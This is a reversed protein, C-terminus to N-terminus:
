NILKTQKTTIYENIINLFEDISNDNEGNNNNVFKIEKNDTIEYIIKTDNDFINKVTYTNKTGGREVFIIGKGQLAKKRTDEEAKKRTDEEAKKRADEEAKKHELQKEQIQKLLIKYLENARKTLIPIIIEKDIIEKDKFGGRLERKEEINLFTNLFHNKIKM